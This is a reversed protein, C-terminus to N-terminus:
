NKFIFINIKKIVIITSINNYIFQKQRGHVPATTPRMSNIARHYGTPYYAKLLNENEKILRQKEQEILYREHEEKKKAM